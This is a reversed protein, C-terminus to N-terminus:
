AMKEMEAVGRLFAALRADTCPRFQKQREKRFLAGIAYHDLPDGGAAFAAAMQEEKFDLAIRLKKLVANNSYTVEVPTAAPAGDPRPGRREVILGDLLAGLERDTLPTASRVRMRAAVQSADLTWGGLAILRQVDAEELSFAQVLHALLTNNHM